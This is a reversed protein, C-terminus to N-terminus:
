PAGFTLATPVVEPKTTVNKFSFIGEFRVTQGIIDGESIRLGEHAMANLGGALKTFEIHDRFNTFILFPMADWIATGRIVSGLQGTVDTKGGADTDVQLKAARSKMKAEIIVGSGSGSVAFNWPNAEGDPRMGHAEGAAEVNKHMAAFRITHRM